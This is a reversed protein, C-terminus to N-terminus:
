HRRDAACTTALRLRVLSACLVDSVPGDQEPPVNAIEMLRSQLEANEAQLRAVRAAQAADTMAHYAKLADIAKANDVAAQTAIAAKYTVFSLKETALNAHAASLRVTQVGALIGLAVIPWVWFPVGGFVTKAFSLAATLFPPM